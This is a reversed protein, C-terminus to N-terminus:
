KATAGQLVAAENMPHVPQGDAVLAVSVQRLSKAQQVAARVEPTMEAEPVETYFWPRIQVGALDLHEGVYSRIVFVNM